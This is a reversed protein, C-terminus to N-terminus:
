TEDNLTFNLKYEELHAEKCETPLKVIEREGKREKRSRLTIQQINLILRCKQAEFCRGAWTIVVCNIGVFLGSCTSLLDNVRFMIASNSPRTCIKRILYLLFTYCSSSILIYWIFNTSLILNLLRNEDKTYRNNDARAENQLMCCFPTVSLETKYIFVTFIPTWWTM